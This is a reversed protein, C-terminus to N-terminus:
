DLQRVSTHVSLLRCRRRRWRLRRRPVAPSFTLFVGLFYIQNFEYFQRIMSTGAVIQRIKLIFRMCHGSISAIHNNQFKSTSSTFENQTFTNEAIKLWDFGSHVGGYDCFGGGSGRRRRWWYAPRCFVMAFRARLDISQLHQEVAVYLEAVVTEGERELKTWKAEKKCVYWATLLDSFGLPCM